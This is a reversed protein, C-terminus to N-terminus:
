EFPMTRLQRITTRVEQLSKGLYIADNALVEGPYRQAYVGESTPILTYDVRRIRLIKPTLPIASLERALPNDERPKLDRPTRPIDSIDIHLQEEKDLINGRDIYDTSM